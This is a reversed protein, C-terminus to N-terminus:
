PFIVPHALDVLMEMHRPARARNLVQFNVMMGHSITGLSGGSKHENLARVFETPGAGGDVTMVIYAGVTMELILWDTESGAIDLGNLRVNELTSQHCYGITRTEGAQFNENFYIWFRSDCREGSM